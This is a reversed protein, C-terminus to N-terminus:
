SIINNKKLLKKVRKKYNELIEDVVLHANEHIADQRYFKILEDPNEILNKVKLYATNLSEENSPDYRIIRDENFFRKDLEDFNTGAYIPICGSECCQIIKETIYGEHGYTNEPCINFIFGKLYEVKTIGDDDFSKVNHNLKGPCDVFSINELKRLISTRSNFKDHSNILACFKLNFRKAVCISKNEKDFEINQNKIFNNISNIKDKTFNRPDSVSLYLPLKVFKSKINPVCGVIMDFYKEAIKEHMQKFWTMPETVYGIKLAKGQYKIPSFVSFFIIDPNEKELKFEIGDEELLKILSRTLGGNYKGEFNNWFNQFDVRVIM